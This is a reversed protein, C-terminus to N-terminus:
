GFRGRLYDAVRPDQPDDFVQRTTGFEALEGGAMFVAVNDSVRAAQQLNHTVIIVTLEDSLERALDEIRASAKPDLSSCPEDMLLVKPRVAIARAVCLRQQQGGSLGFASQRLRDKVETWLGAHRLSEEVSDSLASRRRVGEIRLGYAVNEYISKPFPNPRQFVMGIHHRIAAPDAKLLDQGLFSVRGQAHAGPTLEYMRNLTRLFTSKGCGSPGMVATVGDIPICMSVDRLAQVKGYYFDLNEAEIIIESEINKKIWARTVEDLRCVKQSKVDHAAPQAIPSVPTVM